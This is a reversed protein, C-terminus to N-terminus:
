FGSPTALMTHNVRGCLGRERCAHRAAADLGRIELEGMRYQEGEEVHFTYRVTSKAEDLGAEPTIKAKMYGKAGYSKEAAELDGRLRMANAPEGVPLHIMSDLNQLALM